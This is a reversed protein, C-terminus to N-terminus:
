SHVLLVLHPLKQHLIEKSLGEERQDTVSTRADATSEDNLTICIVSFLGHMAEVIASTSAAAGSQVREGHQTM